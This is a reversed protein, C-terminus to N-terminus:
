HLYAEINNATIEVSVHEELTTSLSLGVFDAFVPFSKHSRNVLVASQIKNVKKDLLAAMAFAFTKGSNLVDDVLVVSKGEIKVEESLSTLGINPNKKDIRIEFVSTKVGTKQLESALLQALKYGNGIIGALIIESETYNTESIEAAIRTIKQLIQSHNLILTRNM